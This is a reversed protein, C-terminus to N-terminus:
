KARRAVRQVPTRTGKAQQAKGMWAPMNGPLRKGPSAAKATRVPGQRTASAKGIPSKKAPAPTVKGAKAAPAVKKAKVAPLTSGRPAKVTRGASAPLTTKKYGAVNSRGEKEWRKAIDPHQSHMFRRQKESKFPM